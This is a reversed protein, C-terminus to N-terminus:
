EYSGAEENTGQLKMRRTGHFFLNFKLIGDLEEIPTETDHILKVSDVLIQKTLQVVLNMGTQM